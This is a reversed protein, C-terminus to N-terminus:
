RKRVLAKDLAKHTSGHSRRPKVSLNVSRAEACCEQSFLFFGCVIQAKRRERGSQFVRTVAFLVDFAKLSLTEKHM